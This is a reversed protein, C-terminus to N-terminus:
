EYRKKLLSLVREAESKLADASGNNYVVIHARAAKDSTPLQSVLRAEAEKLGCNRLEMLRQIQVKRDSILAIVCDYRNEWGIEFLLPIVVVPIGDHKQKFWNEVYLDILPHVIANLQQLAEPDGFVANGLKLRDVSGDDKIMERGFKGAIPSVAAGDPAELDHVVEDCDLIEVGQDRLFDSFLSKGCAIGGTIVIKYM